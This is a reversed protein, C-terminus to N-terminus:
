RHELIPTTRGMLGVFEFGVVADYSDGERLSVLLDHDVVNVFISVNVVVLTGLFPQSGSLEACLCWYPDRTSLHSM